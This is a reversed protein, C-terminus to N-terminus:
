GSSTTGAATSITRRRRSSSKGFTAAPTNPSLTIPLSLQLTSPMSVTAADRDAMVMELSAVSQFRTPAVDATDGSPSVQWTLNNGYGSSDVAPSATEDLKWYGRLGDNIHLDYFTAGDTDLTQNSASNLILRGSNHTFTGGDKNFAGGIETRDSSARFTGGSLNLSGSIDIFGTGQNFTGNSQTFDGNVTLDVGANVTITVNVSISFGAVTRDATITCPNTSGSFVARDTTGPAVGGVWNSATSFTSTAGSWVRDVAQAAGPYSAALVAAFVLGV